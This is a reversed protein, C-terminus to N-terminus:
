LLISVEVADLRGLYKIKINAEGLSKFANVPLANLLVMRPAQGAAGSLNNELAQTIQQTNVKRGSYGICM